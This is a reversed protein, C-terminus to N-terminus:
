RADMSFILRMKGRRDLRLGAYFSFEALNNNLDSMIDNFTTDFIFDRFNKSEGSISSSSQKATSLLTHYPMSM